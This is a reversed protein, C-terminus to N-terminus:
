TMAEDINSKPQVYVKGLNEETREIATFKQSIM